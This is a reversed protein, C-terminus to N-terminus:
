LQVKWSCSYRQSIGALAAVDTLSGLHASQQPPPPPFPISRYMLLYVIKNDEGHVCILM